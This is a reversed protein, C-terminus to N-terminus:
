FPSHYFIVGLDVLNGSLDEEILARGGPVILLTSVIKLSKQVYLEHNDVGSFWKRNLKVFYGYRLLM